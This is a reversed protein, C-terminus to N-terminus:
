PRSPGVLPVLVGGLILIAGLIVNAALPQDLVLVGLLTGVFPQAFFFLSARNADVLAFARNWMWMAAATSIVGLYLIGLLIGGTITGVARSSSEVLALPVVLLLGGSFAWFTVSLTGDRRSVRRVLVSYLGWTVAALALAMDGVFTDSSFNAQRLDVIVLVGVTALTVAVIGRRTLQEGLVPVAFALIFAPSASTIL